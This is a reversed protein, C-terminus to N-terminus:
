KLKMYERGRYFSTQVEFKDTFLHRFKLCIQIYRSVLIPRCVDLKKVFYWMNGKKKRHQMPPRDQVSTGALLSTMILAKMSPTLTAVPLFPLLMASKTGKM